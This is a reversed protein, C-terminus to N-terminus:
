KLEASAMRYPAISIPTTGHVLEIVFKVERDPALDPLEELFADTFENVEPIDSLKGAEQRTDVVHSLYGECGKKLLEYFKTASILCTPTVNREGTFKFEEEGPMNFTVEKCCCGISAHYSSLWDMGLIIDFDRIDLPILDITWDREGM